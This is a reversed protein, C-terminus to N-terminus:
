APDARRRTKVLPLVVVVAVAALVAMTIPRTAIYGVMDGQSILGTRRYNAEFIPGLVFGIVVPSLPYGGKRLVYGLAGFALLAVLDLIQRSVSYTGILSIMVVGYGAWYPKEWDMSLSIGMAIGIALATKLAEKARTSLLMLRVAGM